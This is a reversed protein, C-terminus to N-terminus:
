PEQPEKDAHKKRQEEKWERVKEPWFIEILGVKWEEGELYLYISYAQGVKDYYTLVEAKNESTEYCADIISERMIELINVGTDPDKAHPVFLWWRTYGIVGQSAETLSEFSDRKPGYALAFQFRAVAMRPSERPLHDRLYESWNPTSSCGLGAALVMPLILWGLKM